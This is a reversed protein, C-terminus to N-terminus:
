IESGVSQVQYKTNGMRCWFVGLVRCVSMAESRHNFQKQHRCNRHVKHTTPPTATKRRLKHIYTPPSCNAYVCFLLFIINPMSGYSFLLFHKAPHYNNLPTLHILPVTKIYEEKKHKM